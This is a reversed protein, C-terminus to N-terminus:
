TLKLLMQICLLNTHAPNFWNITCLVKGSATPVESISKDNHQGIYIPCTTQTCLDLTESYVPLGNYDCKYDVTGATVETPVDYNVFLTGNQGPTPNVPDFALNTIHFVSNINCDTVSVSNQAAAATFCLAFFLSRIM